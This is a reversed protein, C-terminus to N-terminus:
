DGLRALIEEVRGMPLPKPCHLDFGAAHANDRDAPSGLGTVAVLYIPELEANARIARALDYGDIGPLGIDLFAVRPKVTRLEALAAEGTFTVHVEHGLLEVLTGLTVAADENDDTVLVIM